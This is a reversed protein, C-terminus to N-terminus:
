VMFSLDINKLLVWRINGNGYTEQGTSCNLLCEYYLTLENLGVVGYAVIMCFQVSYKENSDVSDSWLSLCSQLPEELTKIRNIVKVGCYILAFDKRNNTICNEIVYSAARCRKKLLCFCEKWRIKKELIVSCFSRLVIVKGFM